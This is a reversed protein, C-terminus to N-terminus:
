AEAEEEHMIPRLMQQFPQRGKMAWSCAATQHMNLGLPLSLLQIALGQNSLLTAM